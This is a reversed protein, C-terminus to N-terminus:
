KKKFTLQDVVKDLEDLASDDTTRKLARDGPYRSVINHVHMRGPLKNNIMDDMLKRATSPPVQLELICISRDRERRVAKSM